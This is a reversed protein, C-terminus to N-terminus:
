KKKQMVRNEYDEIAKALADHSLVSCHMKQPPLGGLEKAIDLKGIKRAEEITKGKVMDTLVSSTAIAAVCGFTKVKIDKIIKEGRNNEGIKIFVEMVDGCVPNGVRGIGDADKIEGMNHPNRFIEMVKEAYM